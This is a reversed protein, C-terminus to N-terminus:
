PIESGGSNRRGRWVYMNDIPLVMRKESSFRVLGERFFDTSRISQQLEGDFKNIQEDTVKDKHTGM